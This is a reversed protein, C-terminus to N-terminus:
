RYLNSINEYVKLYFPEYDVIKWVFERKVSLLLARFGQIPRFLICHQTNTAKHRPRYEVVSYLGRLAFVENFQNCLHWLLYLVTISCTFNDSIKMKAGWILEFIVQHLHTGLLWAMDVWLWLPYGCGGVCMIYWAKRSIQVGATRQQIWGHRM